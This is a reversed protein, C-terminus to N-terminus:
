FEEVEKKVKDMSSNINSLSKQVKEISSKASVVKAEFEKNEGMENKKKGKFVLLLMIFIIVFLYGVLGYLIDYLNTWFSGDIGGGIMKKVYIGLVLCVFASATLIRIWAWRDLENEGKVWYILSAGVMALLFFGISGGFLLVAESIGGESTFMYFMGTVGIFSTMLAVTTSEKKHNTGFVPKLGIKLINFFGLFYALYILSFVVYDNDLLGFIGQEGFFKVFPELLIFTDAAFSLDVVSFFVLIPLIFRWLM